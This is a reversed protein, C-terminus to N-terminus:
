KKSRQLNYTIALQLTHNREAKIGGNKPIFHNLYGLQLNCNGNYKWGLALYLRNQDLINSGIGPGFGLFVEEYAALFLTKDAMTKKTIPISIMFRYRARQRFRFGDVQRNNDSNIFANEIFRQELRYRHNFNFKGVKNKLIFQQFIRHETAKTAIPQKGYPFSIIWGYGGTVISNDSTKYDVGIRTLSQQWNKLIANRRFQYETHLSVKKTLQHNGFYMLWANNQSDIQKQSYLSTGILLVFSFTILKTKM